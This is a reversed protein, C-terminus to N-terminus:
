HGRSTYLLRPDSDFKHAAVSALELNEIFTATYSTRWKLPYSHLLTWPFQQFSHAVGDTEFVIREACLLGVDVPDLAVNEEVVLMM